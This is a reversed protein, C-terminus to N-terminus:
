TRTPSATAGGPRSLARRPLLEGQRAAARNAVTGPTVVRVVERDSPGRGPEAMQECIAVRFGQRLLRALYSEAAHYPVGAMPVRGDKGFARGTLTIELARPTKADEDFMEYFDGMRFWLIVDPYQPKIDLYQRRAPTVM